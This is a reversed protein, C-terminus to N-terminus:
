MKMNQNVSILIIIHGKINWFASIFCNALLSVGTRLCCKSLYFSNSCTFHCTVNRRRRRKTRVSDEIQLVKSELSDNQTHKQQKHICNKQNLLEFAPFFSPLSLGSCAMPLVVEKWSQRKFRCYARICMKTHENTASRQTTNWTFYWNEKQWNRSCYLSSSCYTFNM